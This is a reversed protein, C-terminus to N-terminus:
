FTALRNKNYFPTFTLVAQIKPLHSSCRKMMMMQM